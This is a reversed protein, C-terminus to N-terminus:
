QPGGLGLSLMVEVEVVLWYGDTLRSTQWEIGWDMRSMQNPMGFVVSRVFRVFRVPRALRVLGMMDRRDGRMGSSSSIENIEM